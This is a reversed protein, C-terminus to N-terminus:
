KPTTAHLDDVTFVVPSTSFSLASVSARVGVTGAGQLGAQADTGTLQWEAPEGDGVVWAKAALTTPSGGTVRLRVTLPQGPAPAAGPLAVETGLLVDSAATLRVIGLRTTGDEFRRLRAGYASGDSQRRTFLTFVQGASGVVPKDTAVTVRLDVDAASVGGLVAVRTSGSTVSVRGSGGAVSFSGASGAPAWTGGKDAAGWGGAASRTFTDTAVSDTSRPDLPQRESPCVQAPTLGSPAPRDGVAETLAGFSPKPSDDGRLVGAFHPWATTPPNPLDHWQFQILSRIGLETRLQALRRTAEHLLAAQCAETTVTLTSRGGTAWGYETVRIPTRGDGYELARARVERVWRVTDAVSVGYPNIAITDFWPAAGLQYLQELYNGETGGDNTLSGLVVEAAPDARRLGGSVARLLPVYEAANPTGKWWSPFDPENWVEWATIPLYPTRCTAPVDPVSCWFTGRPGYRRAMAEAFRGMTEPDSPPFLSSSTSGAPKSSYFAPPYLLTPLVRLGRASTDTLLQDTRSWDFVGPSTEIRDWWVYQRVLGAGISAQRDLEVRAQAPTPSLADYWTGYFPDPTTAAAAPQGPAVLFSALFVAAVAAAWVSGVRRGGTM